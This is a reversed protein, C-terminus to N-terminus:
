TRPAAQQQLWDNTEPDVSWVFCGRQGRTMLVRYTNKIIEDGIKAAYDPKERQLKKYGFVSRDQPARKTADTIIKGDRVVMDKGIIVGVYELELGQCTHICGVQEVSEPQLLWLMGDDSLNWQMSFNWQPFDIDYLSAEKKSIWPWCYGAVIRAKNNVANRDVILKRLENPDACVRFDYEIDDLTENATARIQLTNDVWSLYGNSGNCRFQSSLSLETVEANAALAHKLVEERSGIDYLTVRQYQDLFFISCSSANIMEKVQNEGQNRFIGSKQNLRHAEDVILTHYDGSSSDVFAGAGKFLSSIRSRTMSGSLKSEYVERPASNRSVYSVIQKKATLAVLLNIAVVSKGTGPGGEVILVKKAAPTSNEAMWLATEYVIKQDDILTFESNGQLLSNLHTALEKSPRIRGNEIEYLVRCQDGKRVYKNIFATLKSVDNRIFVPANEVHRRYHQSRIATADKCNHLYACPVVNIGDEYVSENFDKLLQTYSWAQYSPHLLETQVGRMNAEVIADKGTIGVESWQKLEVVVAVPKFDDDYGSLIFDVRNSTQPIKYEIAIGADEPVGDLVAVMYPLSERWSRIESPSTNRTLKSRFASLVQDEIANTKVDRCFDAKTALYVLM